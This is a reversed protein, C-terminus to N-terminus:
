FPVNIDFVDEARNGKQYATITKEFFNGKEPLNIMDMWDFPNTANYLKNYGLQELLLDATLRVYQCMDDSSLGILDVSLADTVFEEELAVSERVIEYVIDDAISHENPRDRKLIRFLECAFDRHLGEDRVIYENSTQIGPLLGQKRYYFISAFASSFFIGEACAFAVLRQMYPYEQKMWKTMWTAKKQIFPYNEVSNFGREREEPDDILTDIILGYVDWHIAEIGAQIGYFLTAEPIDIDLSFNDQLNHLVIGDVAQFFFLAKKLHTKQNSTLVTRWQSVDDVLRIDGPHWFAKHQKEYFAYLTPYKIPYLSYRRYTSMNTAAAINIYLM